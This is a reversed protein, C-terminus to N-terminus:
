NFITYDVKGQQFEKLSHGLTLQIHPRDTFGSWRGGWEFGHREAISGLTQWHTEPVNYGGKVFVLDVAVGWNHFSEGGKANTVINGPKTRGQAYLENQREISRYGEVIRVPLGLLRMEEVVANVKRLVLPQLRKMDRQLQRLEALKKLLEAIINMGGWLLVIGLEYHAANRKKQPYALM